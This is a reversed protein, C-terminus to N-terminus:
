AVPNTCPLCLIWSTGPSAADRSLTGGAHVALARALQLGVGAGGSGDAVPRSSLAGPDLPGGDTVRVALEVGETAATVRVEGPVAYRLANDLLTAVVQRLVRADVASGDRVGDLDLVIRKGRTRAEADFGAVEDALEHRVPASRAAGDGPDDRALALVGEVARLSRGLRAHTEALLEGDLAEGRASAGRVYGICDSALTLPTRLDHALLSGILRNLESASLAADRAREADRRRRQLLLAVLTAAPISLTAFIRNPIWVAPPSIPKAGVMAAVTFGVASLVGTWVVMAPRPDTSALVIPICLLIGVVVGASTMGDAVCIAAVAVLIAARSRRV